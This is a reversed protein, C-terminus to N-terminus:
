LTGVEVVGLTLPLLAWGILLWSASRIVRFADFDSPDM